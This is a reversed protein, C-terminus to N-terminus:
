FDVGKIAGDKTSDIKRGKCHFYFFNHMQPVSVWSSFLVELWVFINHFTLFVCRCHFLFPKKMQNKKKTTASNQDVKSPKGM